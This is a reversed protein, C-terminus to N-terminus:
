RRDVKGYEGHIAKSAEAYAACAEEKSAFSGLYKKKGEFRIEAKWRNRNKEWCVGKVGSKCNRQISKNCMNQSRTATRLNSRRNNLGNGDKHDVEIGDPVSLIMRHLKITHHKGKISIGRRAYVTHEEVKASWNWKNVLPVDASDIIAEYGNTLPIFAIDGEIRIERVSTQGKM